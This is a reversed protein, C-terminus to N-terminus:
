RNKYKEKLMVTEKLIGKERFSMENKVNLKKEIEDLMQLGLERDNQSDSLLDTDKAANKKAEKMKNELLWNRKFLSKSIELYLFYKEDEGAYKLCSAYDTEM